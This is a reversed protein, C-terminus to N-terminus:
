RLEPRHLNGTWGGHIRGSQLGGSQWLGNWRPGLDARGACDRGPGRGQAPLWQGGAVAGMGDVGPMELDTLVVAPRELAVIRALGDGDCAEGAVVLEGAGALAARLGYLFMPHDDAIVIRVPDAVPNNM